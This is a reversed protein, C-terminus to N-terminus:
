PQLYLSLPFFFPKLSISQITNFFCLKFKELFEGLFGEQQGICIEAPGHHEVHSFVMKEFLTFM